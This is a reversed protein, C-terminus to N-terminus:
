LPASLRKHFLPEFVCFAFLDLAVGSGASSDLDDAPDPPVGFTPFLLSADDCALAKIGAGELKIQTQNLGTDGVRRIRQVFAIGSFKRQGRGLVHILLDVATSAAHFLPNTFEFCLAEAITRAGCLKM